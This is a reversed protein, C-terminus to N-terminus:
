LCVTRPLYETFMSSLVIYKGCELHVHIDVRKITPLYTQAHEDLRTYTVNPHYKEM